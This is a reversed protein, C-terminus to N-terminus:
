SHNQNCSLQNGSSNLDISQAYTFILRDLNYVSIYSYNAVKVFLEINKSPEVGFDTNSTICMINIWSCLAQDWDVEVNVFLYNNQMTKDNIAELLVFYLAGM